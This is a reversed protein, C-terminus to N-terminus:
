LENKGVEDCNYLYIDGFLRNQKIAIKKSKDLELIAMFGTVVELRSRSGMHFLDTFLAKTKTHLYNVIEHMKDKLTVKETKLIQQMKDTNDNVAERRKRVLNEYCSSLEDMNLEITDDNKRFVVNEPTTYFAGSWKEALSELGKSADKYMRYEMIRLALEEETVEDETIIEKRPLLKKSKIHLLTSAMVLFESALELDLSQMSYLYDM